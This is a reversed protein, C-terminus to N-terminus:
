GARKPKATGGSKAPKGKAEPPPACFAAPPSTGWSLHPRIKSMGYRGAKSQFDVSISAAGAAMFSCFRAKTMYARVPDSVAAGNQPMALLAVEEGGAPYLMLTSLVMDPHLRDGRRPQFAFEILDKPDRMSAEIDVSVAGVIQANGKALVLRPYRFIEDMPLAPDVLKTRVVDSYTLFYLEEPGAKMSLDVVEASVGLKELYTKVQRYTQSDAAPQYSTKGIQTTSVLERSMEVRQGNVMMYRVRFQRLVHTQHNTIQHVGIASGQAVTRRVGGAILYACSSACLARGSGFTGKPVEPSAQPQGKATRPAPKPPPPCATSGAGCESFLTRAVAVDLGRQRIMTGVARAVEVRGGRSHILVPLKRDGIQRFVREFARTTEPVIDGEASIWERCKPECAEGAERVLMVRMPETKRPAPKAQQAEATVIAGLHGALTLCGIAFRMMFRTRFEFIKGHM